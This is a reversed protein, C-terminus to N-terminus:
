ALCIPLHRHRLIVIVRASAIRAGVKIVFTAFIRQALLCFACFRVSFSEIHKLQFSVFSITWKLCRARERKLPLYPWEPKSKMTFEWRTRWLKKRKREEREMNQQQGHEKEERRYLNIATQRYLVVTYNLCLTSMKTNAYFHKWEDMSSIWTFICYFTYVCSHRTTSLYGSYFRKKLCFSNPGDDCETCSYHHITSALPLHTFILARMSHFLHFFIM